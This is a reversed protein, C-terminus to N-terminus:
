DDDFSRIFKILSSSHVKSDEIVSSDLCGIMLINVDSIKEVYPKQVQLSRMNRMDSKKNMLANGKLFVHSTLTHSRARLIERVREKEESFRFMKLITSINENPDIVRPGIQVVIELRTRLSTTTQLLAILCTSLFL